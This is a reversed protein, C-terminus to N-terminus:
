CPDAGGLEGSPQSFGRGRRGVRARRSCSWCRRCLRCRWGQQQHSSLPRCGVAAAAGVLGVAAQLMGMRVAAAAAAAATVAAGPAGRSCPPRGVGQHAVLVGGKVAATRGLLAGVVVAAAAPM